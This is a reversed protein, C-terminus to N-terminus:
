KLVNKFLESVEVGIFRALRRRYMPTPLQEGYEWRSYTVRNVGVINAVEQQTYSQEIRYDRLRENWKKNVQEGGLCLTDGVYRKHLIYLDFQNKTGM